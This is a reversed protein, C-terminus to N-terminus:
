HKGSCVYENYAFNIVMRANKKLESICSEMCELLATQIRKMRDTMGVRMEVVVFKGCDSGTQNEDKDMVGAVSLHFRPWFSVHRLFLARM